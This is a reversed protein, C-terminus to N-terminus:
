RGQLPLGIRPFVSCKWHFKETCSICYNQIYKKFICLLVGLSSTCYVAEAHMSERLAMFWVLLLHEM